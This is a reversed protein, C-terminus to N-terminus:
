KVEPPIAKVTPVSATPNAAIFVPLLRKYRKIPEISPKM